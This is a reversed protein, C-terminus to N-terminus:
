NYGANVIVGNTGPDGASGDITTTAVLTIANSFAQGDPGLPLNFGSGNTDGATPIPFTFDPVTTGPTVDAAAADYLHLYAVAATMNMVHLWHLVAPETAISAEANADVNRYKKEAITM